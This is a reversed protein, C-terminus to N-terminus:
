FGQSLAEKIQGNLHLAYNKAALAYDAGHSAYILTRSVSVIIGQNQNDKAADVAAALNAKQAGIGTLLIPMNDVQKRIENLLIPYTAGASIGVNGNRNWGAVKGAVYKYYATRKGDIQNVSLNQFNQEGDRSSTLCDVFVGRDRMELFPELEEGGFSHSVTVADANLRSFVAHAMQENSPKIDGWHADVIAMKGKGHIEEITKTMCELGDGMWALYYALNLKYACVLDSTADVIRCNFLFWNTCSRNGGSKAYDPIKNPNSDLGVCVFKGEDWAKKIKEMFGVPTAHLKEYPSEM